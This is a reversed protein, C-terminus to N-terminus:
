ATPGLLELTTDGLSTGPVVLDLVVDFHNRGEVTVETVPTGAARLGAAHAASQAHFQATEDSGVAVVTPVGGPRLRRVPSNRAAAAADLGVADNITTTLLPELEYVGSVLVAGVVGPEGATMAALHAGASSGAVVIRDPDIGHEGAARRLARLAARCEAVIDDLRARPALTYGVAAFAWGAAVSDAAAFRSDDPSLEQWYGGHLYVLLPVPTATANPPAAVLVRQAPRVGYRQEAVRGGLEAVEAWAAASRERYVALFPRYDGDPLCSSPSYERELANRDLHRWRLEM